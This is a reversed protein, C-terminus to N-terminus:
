FAGKQCRHVIGEKKRWTGNPRRSKTVARSQVLREAEIPPTAAFLDERDGGNKSKFDRAVLRSRVDPDESDGKNTDM